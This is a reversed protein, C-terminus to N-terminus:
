FIYEVTLEINANSMYIAYKIYVANVDDMKM